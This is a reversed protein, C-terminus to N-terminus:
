TKKELLRCHSKSLANNNKYTDSEQTSKKTAPRKIEKLINDLTLHSLSPRERTVVQHWKKVLLSVLNNKTNLQILFTLRMAFTNSILKLKIIQFLM